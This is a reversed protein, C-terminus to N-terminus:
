FFDFYIKVNRTLSHHNDFLRYFSFASYFILERFFCISKKKLYTWRFSIQFWMFISFRKRSVVVSRYSRRIWNWQILAHKVISFCLNNRLVYNLTLSFTEIAERKKCRSIPCFKKVGVEVRETKLPRCSTNVIICHGSCYRNLGCNKKCMENLKLRKLHSRVYKNWKFHTFEHCPFFLFNLEFFTWWNLNLLFKWIRHKLCRIVM